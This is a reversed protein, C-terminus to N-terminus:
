ILFILDVPPYATQSVKLFGITRATVTVRSDLGFCTAATSQLVDRGGARNDPYSLAVSGNKLSNFLVVKGEGRRQTQHFCSYECWGSGRCPIWHGLWGPAEQQQKQKEQPSASFLSLWRAEQLSTFDETKWDTRTPSLCFSSGTVPGHSLGAALAGLHSGLFASLQM